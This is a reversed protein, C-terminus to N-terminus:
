GHWAYYTGQSVAHSVNEASMWPYTTVIFDEAAEADGRSWEGRVSDWRSEIWHEIAARTQKIEEALASREALAVDPLREAALEGIDRRWNAGFELAADFLANRADDPNGAPPSM